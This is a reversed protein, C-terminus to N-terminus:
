LNSLADTVEDIEGLDKLKLFREPYDFAEDAQDPRPKTISAVKINTMQKRAINSAEVETIPKKILQSITMIIDVLSRYLEKIKETRFTKDQMIRDAFQLHASGLVVVGDKLTEDSLKKTASYMIATRGDVLPRGNFHPYLIRSIDLALNPSNEDLSLGDVHQFREGLLASTSRLLSGATLIGMAKLFSRRSLGLTPTKKEKLYKIVETSLAIMLVFVATEAAMDKFNATLGEVSMRNLETKLTQEYTEASSDPFFYTSAQEALVLEMENRGDMFPLASQLIQKNVMKISYADNNFEDPLNRIGDICFIADKSKENATKLVSPTWTTVPNEVFKTWVDKDFIINPDESGFHHGGFIFSTTSDTQEKEVGSLRAKPAETM